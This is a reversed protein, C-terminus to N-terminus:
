NLHCGFLTGGLGWFAVSMIVAQWFVYYVLYSHYTASIIGIVHVIIHDGLLAVGLSIFYIQMYTHCRPDYHNFLTVKIQLKVVVAM